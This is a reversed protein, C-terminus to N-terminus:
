VVSKRDLQIDRSQAKREELGPRNSAVCRYNGAEQYLINDLILEQGSGVSNLSGGYGIRSWCLGPSPRGDAECKLSVKGGVSAEVQPPSQDLISPEDSILLVVFVICCSSMVNRCLVHVKAPPLFKESVVSLSSSNLFITM